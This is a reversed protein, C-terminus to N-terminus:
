IVPFDYRIIVRLEKGDQQAGQEHLWSGRIRLWLNQFWGRDIRYDLTADLEQADIREDFSRADFGAVFNMIFSLGTLGLRSFNYSASALIAKEGARTFTRQMLDVYSPNTGYDSFIPSSSDTVSVGLRVVANRYSGSARIGFSWTDDLEPGLLDDGVDWQRTFQGDIRAELDESFDHAFSAEVYTGAFLDPVAGAIAGLHLDEHPDWVAGGHALGRDKNLGIAKTFSRFEDSDRLKVKWSYGTSFRLEGEPKGLVLAEFTNPTMRNDQRNTYPLDLYQRFGTVAIGKYRLRANAIGLVTYGDQVPELLLTDPRRNPAVVPQSTFGEAELRFADLLWGSRYYVSGGMAWAESISDDTREDRLYYTRYRAELVSNAFFPPLNKLSERVRLFLPRRAPEEPFVREMPTEIERASPPPPSEDLEREAARTPLALLAAGLVVLSVLRRRGFGGRV